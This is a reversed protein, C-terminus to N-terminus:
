GGPRVVGDPGPRDGTTPVTAGAARMPAPGAAGGPRAAGAPVVRRRGPGSPAVGAPSSGVRCPGTPASATWGARVRSSATRRGERVEGAVHEHGGERARSGPGGAM